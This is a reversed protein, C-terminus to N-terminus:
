IDKLQFHMGDPIRWAGGWDFGADLFCDVFALSLKPIQNYGNEFANIDVAVGWSHLSWSQGGTTKRVNFCGDWTLLESEAFGRSILNIFALQLPQILLRNCYIRKPIVGIELDLPVDWITLWPNYKSPEGFKNLCDVATIM